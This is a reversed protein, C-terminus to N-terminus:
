SAPRVEIQITGTTKQLSTARLMYSGAPLAESVADTGSVVATLAAEGDVMDPLDGISQEDPERVLEVRVSGKTLGSAIVIQEGDAVELSGAMFFEDKATHEATVTMRKETSETLGFETKGCATLLLLALVAVATFLSIRKIKERM